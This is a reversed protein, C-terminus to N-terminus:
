KRKGLTPLGGKLTRVSRAKLKPVKMPKQKKTKLKPRAALQEAHALDSREEASLQHWHAKVTARFVQLKAQLDSRTSGEPFPTSLEILSLNKAKIVKVYASVLLNLQASTIKRRQLTATATGKTRRVRAGTLKLPDKTNAM